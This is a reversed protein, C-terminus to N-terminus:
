CAHMCCYLILALAPSRLSVPETAPDPLDGPPPFPLGSWYEQRPLGYAFSGPLNCDKPNCLTPCLQLLKAYCLSCMCPLIHISRLSILLSWAFCLWVQHFINKSNWWYFDLMIWGCKLYAYYPSGLHSLPYLIWRCCLLRLNLGHTLFIGQLLAHCGSWYGQRLFGTSLPAQCAVTWLPVFFLSIAWDHGVRQLGISHLRGPKETWPIKSALTSSHTAM